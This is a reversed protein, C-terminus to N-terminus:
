LAVCHTNVLGHLVELDETHLVTGGGTCHDVTAPDDVAQVAVLTGTKDMKFTFLSHNRNKTLGLSIPGTSTGSWFPRSFLTDKHERKGASKFTMPSSVSVITSDFNM